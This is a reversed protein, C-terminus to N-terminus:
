MASFAVNINYFMWKPKIVPMSFYISTDPKVVLIQFQITSDPKIVPMTSQPTYSQLNHQVAGAVIFPLLFSLFALANM